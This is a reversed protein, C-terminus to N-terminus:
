SRPTPLYNKAKVSYALDMFPFFSIFKVEYFHLINTRCFVLVFLCGVSHSVINAFLIVSLPSIDLIYLCSMCSLLLFIFFRIKFHAYSRCLHKEWLLYVTLLCMFVYKVVSIM